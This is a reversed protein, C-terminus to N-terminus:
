LLKAAAQRQEVNKVHILHVIAIVKGLRCCWHVM